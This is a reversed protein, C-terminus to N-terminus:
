SLIPELMNENERIWKYIDELTAKTSKKPYWGSIKKIKSNDGIYIRVDGPREEKIKTISIKNGSIKQCLNTLELLSLSNEKGGGVNFVEGSYKEINALQIKLLDFLDDIDIIDRVQKGEGGFGIYSLQEKYVHKAMWLVIVGQDVKGMQWPGTILGCRNIIGRIGYNNIYETLMFEASLKSAGYLTRVGDLPFEETIGEGSSGGISQKNTLSFRTKSEEFTLNNLSKVPYVRSTSLFVIDSKNKRALEFCNLAGVLNTDVLYEPSSTVGAMVSPEASCEVILDIGSFQLDERSRVDGRIFGIGYKEFRPLNLKSGKRILNDFAIIQIDSFEQKLKLCINSGVFGAGGTVLIKKYNMNHFIDSNASTKM